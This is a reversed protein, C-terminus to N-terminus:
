FIRSVFPTKSLSPKGWYVGFNFQLMRWCISVVVYRWNGLPELIADNPLVPANPSTTHEVDWTGIEENWVKEGITITTPM